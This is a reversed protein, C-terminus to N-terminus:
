QPRSSDIPGDTRPADPSVTLGLRECLARPAPEGPPLRVCVTLAGQEAGWDLLEAVLATALGQRRRAPEVLLGSIGIWDGDIRASAEAVPDCGTGISATARNDGVSLEVTHSGRGITRRMRALSALRIEGDGSLALAAARRAAEDPSVRGLVSPRPPVPKGSVIRDLAVEVVGRDSDVTCSREGWATCVGLVDTARGDDLLHRIVIRRGM